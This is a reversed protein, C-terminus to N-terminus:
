NVLYRGGKLFVEGDVRVEGEQRIDCVLDQHIASTNASGTDPYGAGLALHITGGIKEDFLTNGTFQQIGENTGFAFEGARRAGDDTDLLTLFFAENRDASADVVSGAEFKLYIGAVEHGQIMAPFTFRIHGEVSNEVPGTFVEGSPFNRKGDSNNWIRGEISFQLDTDPGLVHVSRRPRLWDIMRAQRDSLARWRAVPDSDNLYCADFVFEQYDHLSMQADQAHAQTPFLTLSWRLDGEAARKMRNQRLSQRASAFQRIRDGSVGSLAKTNEEAIIRLEADVRENLIQEVPSISALQEDSGEPLLIEALGPLQTQVVPNAGAHLALRYTERILDAALTSGNIVVLDDPRLGLSHHVLVNAMRAVRPDTM